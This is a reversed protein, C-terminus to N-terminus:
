VRLVFFVRCKRGSGALLGQVKFGSYRLCGFTGM